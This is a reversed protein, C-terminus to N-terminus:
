QSPQDVPEALGAHQRAAQEGVADGDGGDKGAGSRRRLDGRRDAGTRHNRLEARQGPSAPRGQQATPPAPSQGGGGRAAGGGGREKEKGPRNKNVASPAAPSGTRALAM